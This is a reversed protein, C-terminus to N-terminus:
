ALAFYNSEIRTNKRDVCQRQVFFMNTCCLTLLCNQPFQQLIMQSITTEANDPTAQDAQVVCHIILLHTNLRSDHSLSHASQLKMDDLQAQM